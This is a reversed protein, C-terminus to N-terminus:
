IDDIFADDIEAENLAQVQEDGEYGFIDDQETQSVQVLEGLRELQKKENDGYKHFIYYVDKGTTCGDKQVLVTHKPAVKDFKRGRTM